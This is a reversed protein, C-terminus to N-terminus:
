QICSSAWRRPRAANMIITIIIVGDHTPPTRHTRSAADGDDSQLAGLPALKSYRESGPKRPDGKLARVCLVCQRQYFAARMEDTILRTFALPSLRQACSASNDNINRYDTGNWRAGGYFLFGRACFFFAFRAFFLSPMLSVVGCRGSSLLYPSPQQSKTGTWNARERCPAIM